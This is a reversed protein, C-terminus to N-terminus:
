PRVAPTEVPLGAARSRLYLELAAYEPAGYPYPEARMGSLCNRLRRQVSGLSQWELRYVPYGTPHAQPVPNGALRKGWNDDHCLACSLNLQGQREEYLRRGAELFPALRPDDAPAVALGRSQNSVFASLGLLEQSEFALPKLGQREVRCQNIREELVIPRGQAESFAPYRAAVGRLSEGTAGHCDACAREGPAPRRAWLAEGERVWLMGPNADDRQMAQTERSMFEFGSRKEDAPIEGARLGPSALVLVAWLAAAAIPPRLTM